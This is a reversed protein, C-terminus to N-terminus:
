LDDSKVGMKTLLRKIATFVRSAFNKTIAGDNRMTEVESGIHARTAKNETELRQLIEKKAEELDERSAPENM